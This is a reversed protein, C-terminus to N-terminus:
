EVQFKVNSSLTGGPTTVEITGTTAGAPVTAKIFTNSVVTFTAPVGNFTVSTTGTLNNGLVGVVRGTKGGSPLAEVFPSLGNTGKYVVGWGSSGGYGTIGYFAGSTAQMVGQGYAGDACNAQSCFTHVTLLRGTPTIKFITGCGFGTGGCLGPSANGGSFTTGYINGDNGLTLNGRPMTGDPCPVTASYCFGYLTTLRGQLTVKFVTGGGNPGGGATTGYINGDNGVILPENLSLTGDACNSLSCFSYIPTLKGAPTIEFINGGHGFLMTTGYFNGNPAQVVGSVPVIGDTCNGNNDATTCFRYLSTFSGTPSIKFVTGCGLPCGADGNLIGGSETTGYFNGDAGLVLQSPYIGDACNLQSCLNYLTTLKGGPTIKFITGCGTGFECPYGQNAGGTFTSGYFNGDAGLVLAAEPLGGDACNAQSCFNYLVTLKGEPTVEFFTGCSTANGYACTANTGGGVAIGYYNGNLGQVLPSNPYQGTSPSLNALVQYTQAHSAIATTVCFLSVICAIKILGSKKM